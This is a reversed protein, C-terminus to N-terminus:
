AAAHRHGRFAPGRELMAGALAVAILVGNRTLAFSISDPGPSSCGCGADLGAGRAIIALYLTFMLLLTASAACALRPRAGSALWVILCLEAAVVVFAVATAWAGVFMGHRAITDAFAFMGRAMGHSTVLVSDLKATWAWAFTSALALRSTLTLLAPNALM